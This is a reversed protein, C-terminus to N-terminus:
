PLEMGSYLAELERLLVGTSWEDSIVHHMAIALVHRDAAVRLLTARFLPGTALDFLAAADATLWADVDEAAIEVMPLDFRSAPDILQWPVGDADVVLRTRLVEHRTVLATLAGVLADVDLAGDLPVTMPTNYELSDPELQHLFWLRQQAFSLPLVVDRGVPVIPPATTGAAAEVVAALGAVTPSDFVAAVPVEVGFLARVRSIVQTALLSHGGLAFFNDTAGVRDVGILEAWVGALAEQVAGVPEVFALVPRVAGVAPLAARDVKGNASLPLETLEVFVAPVMYQPLRGSVWERLGDSAGVVYAVLRDGDAVVVAASVAPHAVLVHEVEGPEVRYGRVNLQVDSRGQFWLLGDEGRRVVDGTRYM